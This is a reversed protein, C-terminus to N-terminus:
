KVKAGITKLSNRRNTTIFSRASQVVNRPIEKESKVAGHKTTTDYKTKRIKALQKRSEDLEKELKLIKMQIEMELIKNKHPSGTDYNHENEEEQRIKKSALVLHETADNVAKGAARLRLQVASKPDSRVGAAALLQVTSASVAKSCVIVREIPGEEKAFQNASDCLDHTAGVVCKAASVLGDSWTGDHFYMKEETPALKGTAIIERQVGTASKVLASTAAAIAKAAEIIQEDFDLDENAIRPNETIQLAMLKRSAAEIANAASLLEREAIVNPDNPDVYGDPVLEASAEVVGKIATTIAKVDNQLEANFRSHHGSALSLEIKEMVDATALCVSSIAEITKTGVVIPANAIAAKGARCLKAIDGKAQNLAAAVIENPSGVIGVLGLISNAVENALSVVEAPLATGLAPDANLLIDNLHVIEDHANRYLISSDNFMQDVKKIFTEIPVIVDATIQIKSELEHDGHGSTCGSISEIYKIFSKFAILLDQALSLLEKQIDSNYSAISAAAQTTKIKVEHLLSVSTFVLTALTDQDLQAAQSYKKVNEDLKLLSAMFKEKHLMFSDGESVPNLQKGEVFLMTTDLENKMEDLDKELKMCALLGTSYQTIATTLNNIKSNLDKVGQNSRYSIETTDSRLYGQQMGHITNYLADGYGKVSEIIRTKLEVNNTEALIIAAESGINKYLNLGSSAIKGFQELSDINISTFVLQQILDSFDKIKEKIGLISDFPPKIVPFDVSYDKTFSEINNMSKIFLLDQKEASKAADVMLKILENIINLQKKLHYMNLATGNSLYINLEHFFTELNEGCTQFHELFALRKEEPISGIIRV